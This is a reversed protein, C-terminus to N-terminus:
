ASTSRRGDHRSQQSFPLDRKFLADVPFIEIGNRYHHRPGEQPVENLLRHYAPHQDRYSIYEGRVPAIGGNFAYAIAAAAVALRAARANAASPPKM